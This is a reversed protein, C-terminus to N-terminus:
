LGNQFEHWPQYFEKLFLNKMAQKLRGYSSFFSDNM